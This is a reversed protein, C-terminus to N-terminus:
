NVKKISIFLIVKLTGGAATTRNCCDLEKAKVKGKAPPTYTYCKYGFVRKLSDKARLHNNRGSSFAICVHHDSM